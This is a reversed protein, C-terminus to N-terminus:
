CLSYLYEYCEKANVCHHIGFVSDVMLQQAMVKACDVTCGAFRDRTLIVIQSEAETSNSRNYLGQELKDLWVRLQYLQSGVHMSIYHDVADPLVCDIIFVHDVFPYKANLDKQAHSSCKGVFAFFTTNTFSTNLFNPTDIQPYNELDILVLTKKTTSLTRKQTSSTSSTSSAATSALSASEPPIIIAMSESEAKYAIEAVAQEAEKKTGYQDSVYNRDSISVTVSWTPSPWSTYSKFSYTPLPMKRKQCLEQLLGKYNIM